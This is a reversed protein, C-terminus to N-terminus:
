LLTFVLTKGNIKGLAKGPLEVMKGNGAFIIKDVSFLHARSIDKTTGQLLRLAELYVERRFFADETKLAKLPVVIEGERKEAFQEIFLLAKKRFYGELESFFCAEEFIHRVAHRNVRELVPIVEKRIYNRTFSLDSNSSDEVGALSLVHLRELIEAKRLCLLPRIKNEEISQMGSLGAIGTGRVLHHMVTEAQDDMHQALALKTKRGERSEWEARKRELARYRLIRGGEELGLGERESFGPVDVRVFSFPIEWEEAKRKAFFLDREAEEERIGHHIHMAELSFPIHKRLEKLFYLLYLSDSGGSFALLVQEGPLILQNKKIYFFLKTDTGSQM